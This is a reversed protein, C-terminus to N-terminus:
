GREAKVQKLINKIDEYKEDLIQLMESKKGAPNEWENKAMEWTLPKNISFEKLNWNIEQTDNDGLIGPPFYPIGDFLLMVSIYHCIEGSLDLDPKVSKMIALGLILEPYDIDSIQGIKFEAGILAMLTYYFKDVAKEAEGTTLLVCLAGVINHVTLVENDPYKGEIPIGFSLCDNRTFNNAELAKKTKFVLQAIDFEM